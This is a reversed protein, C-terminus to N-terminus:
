SPKLVVSTLNLPTSRSGLHSLVLYRLSHDKTLFTVKVCVKPM